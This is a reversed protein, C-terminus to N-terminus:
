CPYDNGVSRIEYKINLIDYYEKADKMGGSWGLDIYFARKNTTMAMARGVTIGREREIPDNDDLATTLMLHSAYPSENRDVCDRICRHLYRLNRETDGAYPSEITITKMYNNM